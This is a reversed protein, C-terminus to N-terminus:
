LSVSFQLLLFHFRFNFLHTTSHSLSRVKNQYPANAYGATPMRLQRFTKTCFLSPTSATRDRLTGYAYRVTKDM